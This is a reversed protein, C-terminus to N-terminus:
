MVWLAVSGCSAGAKNREYRSIYGQVLRLCHPSSSSPPHLPLFLLHLPCSEPKKKKKKFKHEKLERPWYSIYRLPWFLYLKYLQAWKSCGKLTWAAERRGNFTLEKVFATAEEQGKSLGHTPPTGKHGCHVSRGHPKGHQLETRPREYVYSTSVSTVTM